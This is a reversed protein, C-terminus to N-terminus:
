RRYGGNGGNDVNASGAAGSPPSGGAYGGWGGGGDGGWGGGGGGGWGGGGWGGAGWGGGVADGLDTASLETSRYQPALDPSVVTRADADPIKMAILCRVVIDRRRMDLEPNPHVRFKYETDPRASNMSREVLVQADHGMTLRAAIQKLHDEGATNLFEADVVFEHEHVVFDSREANSEQNQWVPDSLTGLPSAAPRGFGGWYPCGATALAAVGIVAVLLKRLQPRSTM